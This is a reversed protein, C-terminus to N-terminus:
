DMIGGTTSKKATIARELSMIAAEVKKLTTSTEVLTQRDKAREEATAKRNREAQEAQWRYGEAEREDARKETRLMVEKLEYLAGGAIVGLFVSSATFLLTIVQAPSLATVFSGARVAERIGSGVPGQAPPEQYVPHTDSPM